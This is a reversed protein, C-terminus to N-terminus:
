FNNGSGGARNDRVTLRFNLTRAVSSLKLPLTRNWRNYNYWSFSIANESLLTNTIYFFSRDLNVLLKKNANPATTNTQNNFQEWNYTLSFM